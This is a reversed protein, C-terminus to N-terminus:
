LCMRLVQEVTGEEFVYTEPSEMVGQVITPIMESTVGLERLTEPLGWRRFVAKLAQIGALGYERDTMQETREIGFVREAFQMFKVPSKENELELWAPNIVALGEGHSSDTLAGVAHQIWHAPFGANSRGCDQLGSMALTAAWSLAARANLDEPNDLVKENEIVTMVIGEGIRDSIPNNPVGDFYGEIIHSITDAMGAATIKNPVSVLLKPDIIATEPFAHPDHIAWKQWKATDEPEDNTVVVHCSTEAGTASITSVAVMPLSASVERERRFFEWVDGDCAAGIAIAKGADIASGGGVAVVVEAGEEKALAIGEQIKSLKPNSSVYELVQVTVQAEELSKVAREYVGMQELPGEQKVLLAKDGLSKVEAGLDAFRGQGFVVKTPNYYEFDNM